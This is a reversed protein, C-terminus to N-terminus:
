KVPPPPNKTFLQTVTVSLLNFGNKGGDVFIKSIDLDYFIKLYATFFALNIIALLTVVLLYHAFDGFTSGKNEKAIYMMHSTLIFGGLFLFLDASFSVKFLRPFILYILGTILLLFPIVQGMFTSHSFFEQIKKYVDNLDAIFTYFLFASIMSLFIAQTNVAKSSIEGFFSRSFEV